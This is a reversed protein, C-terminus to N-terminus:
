NKLSEPNGSINSLTNKIVKLNEKNSKKEFLTIQVEKKCSCHLYFLKTEKYHLSTIVTVLARFLLFFFNASVVRELFTIPHNM